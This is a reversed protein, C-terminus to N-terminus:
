RDKRESGITDLLAQEMVGTPPYIGTWMEFSAAGQYVLMKIGTVASAGAARAERVLRTELPNYILDYVLHHPKILRSSIPTADTYPSMGVSTTNVILECAEAAEEFDGSDMEVVSVSGSSSFGELMKKLAAAKAQTRNAIVLDCGISRLAACVARAAGGAGLILTKKGAINGWEDEASRVFGIGDTSEGHLYGDRNTITNVSGIRLATESVSDLYPIIIEKHPITANVGRIQLARFGDLAKQINNPDVEFPVYIYDLNLAEIAANHMAPSLSHGVPCGIVALIKTKGTITM